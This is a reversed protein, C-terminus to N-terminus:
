KWQDRESEGEEKTDYRALIPTPNSASMLVFIIDVRDVEAVLQILHTKGMGTLTILFATVSVCGTQGVQFSRM